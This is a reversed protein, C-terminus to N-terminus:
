ECNWDVLILEGPVELQMVNMRFFAFPFFKYEANRKVLYDWTKVTKIYFDRIVREWFLRHKKM